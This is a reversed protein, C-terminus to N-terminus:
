YISLIEKLTKKEKSNSPQVLIGQENRMFLRNLSLQEIPSSICRVVCLIFTSFNYLLIYSQLTSRKSRTRPGIFIFKRPGGVLAPQSFIKVSFRFSQSLKLTIKAKASLNLKYLPCIIISIVFVFVCAVDNPVPGGEPGGPEPFKYRSGRERMPVSQLLYHFSVIVFKSLIGGAVETNCLTVDSTSLDVV